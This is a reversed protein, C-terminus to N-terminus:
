QVGEPDPQPGEPGIMIPPHHQEAPSQFHFEAVSFGGGLPRCHLLAARFFVAETDLFMRFLGRWKLKLSIYSGGVYVRQPTDKNLAIHFDFGLLNLCIRVQPLWQRQRLEIWM